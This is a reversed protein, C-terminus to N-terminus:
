QAHHEILAQRALAREGAFCDKVNEGLDGSLVRRGQAREYGADRAVQLRDDGLAQVRIRLLQGVRRLRPRLEQSQGLRERPVDRQRLGHRDRGLHAEALVDPRRRALECSFGSLGSVHM